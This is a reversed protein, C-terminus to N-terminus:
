RPEVAERALQDLLVRWRDALGGMEYALVDSVGAWDESAVATKLEVLREALENICAEGTITDGGDEGAAEVAGVDVGLLAGSREVVDRVISWLALVQQLPEIADSVSGSQIREAAATQDAQAAELAGSAEILTERVFPGPSASLFRLETVGADDEPPDEILGAPAPAGDAQVEVVIRGRGQADAKAAAIAGRVGEAPVDLPENDLYVKM